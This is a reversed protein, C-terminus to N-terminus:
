WYSPRQLTGGRYTCEVCFNYSTSYADIGAGAGYIADYISLGSEYAVRISDPRNAIKIEPCDQPFTWRWLQSNSIFFRKEEITSASIYGIVIEGPNSVCRINGRLESPQADFITGLSETNKKMMEYFEYGQKDLAYQRLLVSYRVALRESGNPIFTLPARYIADSQLHASSGLLINKSYDYKWCRSVDDNAAREIVRGNEYKYRSYYPTRIEWTEDYDWRYYRTNNSGDHTNAYVQVGKEDQKFGLSDIAPTKKAMMFDSLYEKGNATIIRLRYEENLVLNLGPSFYFGNGTMTLQRSTNNKGEVIVKANSEGRLRASDDLKFTRTLRINTAGAGANLVGEVVLYSDPSSIIAPEYAERCAFGITIIICGLLLKIRM